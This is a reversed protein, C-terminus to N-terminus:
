SMTSRANMVRHNKELSLLRSKLTRGGVYPGIDENDQVVRHCPYILPLPNNRLVEQINKIADPQHFYKALQTYTTTHGYPIKRVTDLILKQRGFILFGIPVSIVQRQGVLYQQIQEVLQQQTEDFIPHESQSEAMFTFLRQKVPNELTLSLLGHQNTVIQCRFWEPILYHVKKSGSLPIQTDM